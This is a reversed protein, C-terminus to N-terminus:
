PSVMCFFGRLAGRNHWAFAAGAPLFVADGSQLHLVAEPDTLTLAGELLCLLTNCEVEVDRRENDGASCGGVRVCGSASEYALEQCELPLSALRDSLDLYGLSRDGWEEDPSPRAVKLKAPDSEAPIDPRELYLFFKRYYGPMRWACPLGKPLFFAEGAGIREAKGEQDTITVEGELLVMFEFVPYPALRTAGGSCDWTGVCVGDREFAKHGRQQPM